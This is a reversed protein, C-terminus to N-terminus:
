RKSKSGGHEFTKCCTDMCTGAPTEGMTSVISEVQQADYRDPLKAATADNTILIQNAVCENGPSWYHCNDITCKVGPM